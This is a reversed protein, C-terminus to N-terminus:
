ELDLYRRIIRNNWISRLILAWIFVVIGIILYDVWSALPSIDFLSNGLETFSLVFFITVLIIQVIAPWPNGRYQNIVAFARIPPQVFLVTLAGCGILTYTLALQSYLIDKTSTYFYLYVLFGAFGTLIGAPVVFDLLHHSLKGKPQAGSRATVTIAIAPLDVTVFGIAAALKGTYPFGIGLLGISLVLFLFYVIRTMYIKLADLLGNVVGQGEKFLKRARQSFLGM